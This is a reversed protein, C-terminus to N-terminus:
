IHTRNYTFSAHVLLSLELIINYYFCNLLVIRSLLLFFVLLTFMATESLIPLAKQRSFICTSVMNIFTVYFKPLDCFFVFRNLPCRHCKVFSFLLVMNGRLKGRIERTLVPEIIRVSVLPSESPQCKPHLLFM